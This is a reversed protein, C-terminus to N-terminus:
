QATIPCPRATRYGRATPQIIRLDYAPPVRFDQGWLVYRKQTVSTIVYDAGPLAETRDTTKEVKVPSKHHAQILGALGAMKSLAPENVYGPGSYLRLKEPGLLVYRGCADREWFQRQWRRDLSDESQRKRPEGYTKM